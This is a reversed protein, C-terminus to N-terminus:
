PCTKGFLKDFGSSKEAKSCQSIKVEKMAARSQSCLLCATGIKAGKAWLQSEMKGSTYRLM